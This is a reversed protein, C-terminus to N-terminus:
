NAQFNNIGASSLVRDLIEIDPSWESTAINIPQLVFTHNHGFIMSLRSFCTQVGLMKSTTPTTPVIEIIRLGPKAFLLHSFGAGHAGVVLEANRFLRVKDLLSLTSLVVSTIGRDALAKEFEPEGTMSRRSSDRRSIYFCRPTTHDDYRDALAILEGYVRRYADRRPLTAMSTDGVFLRRCFATGNLGIITEKPIGLAGLADVALARQEKRLLIPCDPTDPSLRWSLGGLGRVLWEFYGKHRSTCSFAEQYNPVSTSDILIAPPRHASRFVRGDPSWIDGTENVFVDNYEVVFPFRKEDLTNRFSAWMERVREETEPEIGELRVVTLVSPPLSSEDSDDPFRYTITEARSARQPLDLFRRVQQRATRDKTKKSIRQALTKVSGSQHDAPLTALIAAAQMPRKARCMMSAFKILQDADTIQEIAVLCGEIEAEDSLEIAARIRYALLDPRDFSGATRRLTILLDVWRGAVAHSKVERLVGGVGNKVPSANLDAMPSAKLSASDQNM